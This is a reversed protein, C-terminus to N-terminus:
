RRPGRRRSGHKELVREAERRGEISAKRRYIESQMGKVSSRFDVIPAPYDELSGDPRVWLAAADTRRGRVGHSPSEVGRVAQSIIVEPPLHRLEPVFRRIFACDADNDLIQKTPNYVRVTNIGVVGAQMQLQSIHIGPLYDAMIRAMPDRIRRWDMHLAYTAFSVLMARMRFNVFGTTTLARVTADVMPFGTRGTWLRQEMDATATYPVDEYARNLSHFQMSPEGELRQCFHDHWYLRSRFARLSGLWGKLAAARAPGREREARVEAVRADLARFVQRLTITGWALHTSLRSGTHRAREPASIGRSYERARAFLFSNLVIHAAEEDVRQVAGEARMYGLEHPEPIATAACYRRTESSMPITEPAPTVVADMRERWTAMRADRDTLGRIVGNRPFEIFRIERERAWTRIRRDRVFTLHTGTEEEAVITDFGPSGLLQEFASPLDGHLILLEAGLARLDARLRALAHVVVQVHLRGTDEAALASTEFVYVPLVEGGDRRAQRCAEALPQNDRLRFDRKIWWLMRM